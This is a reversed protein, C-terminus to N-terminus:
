LFMEYRLDVLIHFELEEKLAALRTEIKIITEETSVSRLAQRFSKWKRNKGEVRAAQLSALLEEGVSRSKTCLAHLAHNEVVNAVSDPMGIAVPDQLKATLYVLHQIAVEKNVHEVLSGDVSKYIRFGKAVLESGFDILQAISSALSLASLPDM